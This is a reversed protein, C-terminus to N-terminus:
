LFNGTRYTDTGTRYTDTTIIELLVLSFFLKKEFLHFIISISM